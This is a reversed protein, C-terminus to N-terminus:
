VKHKLWELSVGIVEEQWKIQSFVHDSHPIVSIEFFSAQEPGESAKQGFRERFAQYFPDKEGYVFFIKKNQDLCAELAENAVDHFCEWGEVPDFEGMGAPLNGDAYEVGLSLLIAFRVSSICAATLLADYAGSCLGLVGLKSIGTERVFFDIVKRALSQNGVVIKRYGMLDRFCGESDGIGPADYRFVFYGQECFRRALRVYQRYPGIRYRLGSTSFLIGQERQRLKGSEPMHIIGFLYDDGVRFRVPEEVFTM